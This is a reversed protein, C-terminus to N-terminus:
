AIAGSGSSRSFAKSVLPDPPEESRALCVPAPACPVWWSRDESVDSRKPVTPSVKSSTHRTGLADSTIGASTSMELTRASSMRRSSGSTDAAISVTM